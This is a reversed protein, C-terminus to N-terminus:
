ALVHKFKKTKNLRKQGDVIKYANYIIYLSLGQPSNGYLECSHIFNHKIELSFYVRLDGVLIIDQM